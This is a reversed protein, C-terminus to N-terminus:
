EAMNIQFRSRADVRELACDGYSIKLCFGCTLADGAPSAQPFGSSWVQQDASLQSHVTCRQAEGAAETCKIKINVNVSYSMALGVSLKLYFVLVVSDVNRWQYSTM